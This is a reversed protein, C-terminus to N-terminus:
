DLQSWRLEPMRTLPIRGLQVTGDRLTLPAEVVPPGNEQPRAMLSLIAKATSATRAHLAGVATLADLAESFGSLRLTATGTPQLNADLSLTTTGSAAVKGWDLATLLVTLKGGQDRWRTAWNSAGGAIMGQSLATAHLDLREMTPGFAWLLKAMGAVPEAPFTAPGAKLTIGLTPTTADLHIQLRTLSFLMPVGVRGNYLDLDALGIPENNALPIHLTATDIAEVVQPSEGIQTHLAGHAEILLMSSNLLSVGFAAHDATVRLKTPEAPSTVVAAEIGVMASLPWGTARMAGLEISWGRGRAVEVQALLAQEVRGVAWRWVLTHALALTGLVAISILLPRRM